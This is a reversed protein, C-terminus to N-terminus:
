TLIILLERSKFCYFLPGFDGWNVTVTIVFRRIEIKNLDCHLSAHTVNFLSVDLMAGFHEKRLFCM